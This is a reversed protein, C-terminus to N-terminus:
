IAECAIEKGAANDGGVAVAARRCPSIARMDNDKMSVGASAERHAVTFDAKMEDGNDGASQPLRM